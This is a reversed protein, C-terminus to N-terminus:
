RMPSFTAPRTRGQFTVLYPARDPFRQLLEVNREGLDRAVLVPGDFGTANFWYLAEMMLDYGSDDRGFLLVRGHHRGLSDATAMTAMPILGNDLYETDAWRRPHDSSTGRPWPLHMMCSAAVLTLAFALALRPRARGVFALLGAAALIVFPLLETYLRLEEYWYLVHVLPLLSFAGVTAWPVRFGHVIAVAALPVLLGIPVFTTNLGALRDALYGLGRQLTFDHPLPVRQGEATIVSIGRPGFGLDYLDGSMVSYSVALPDGLVVANYSLLFAGPLLGGLAVWTTLSARLSWPAKRLRLLAWLGISAGLAVGSLPRVVVGVGLLVGAALWLVVRRKPMTGEAALFCATAGLGACITSAHSMYGAHTALFFPSAMLLLGAVIAARAGVLTWGIRVVLAISTVGLVIMSWWELGVFRFGALLAPWGPPYMGYLHGDLFDVKRIRFFDALASDAPLSFQGREMWRSQVVYIVEDPATSWPPATMTRLWTLVIASGLLLAAVHIPRPRWHFWADAVARDDIPLLVLAASWGALAPFLGAALVDARAAAALLAAVLPLAMTLGGCSLLVIVGRRPLRRLTPVALAAVLLLVGMYVPLLVKRSPIRAAALELGLLVLVAGLVRVGVDAGPVPSASAAGSDHRVAVDPTISSTM